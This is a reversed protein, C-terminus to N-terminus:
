LGNIGGLRIDAIVVDPAVWRNVDLATQGGLVSDYTWCDALRVLLRRVVQSGEAIVVDPM